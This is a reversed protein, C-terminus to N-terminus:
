NLSTEFIGLISNLRDDVKGFIIPFNYGLLITGLSRTKKDLTNATQDEIPSYLKKGIKVLFTDNFKDDKIKDTAEFSLKFGELLGSVFSSKSIIFDCEPNLLESTSLLGEYDLDDSLQANIENTFKDKSDLLKYTKQKHKDKINLYDNFLDIANKIDDFSENNIEDVNVLTVPKKYNFTKLTVGTVLTKEKTKFDLVDSAIKIVDNISSFCVLVNNKEKSLSIAKNIAENEDKEEIITVGKEETITFLQDVPGILTFTTNNKDKKLFIKIAQSIEKINQNKKTFEIVINM